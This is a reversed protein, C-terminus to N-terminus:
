FQFNYELEKVLTIKDKLTMSELEEKSHGHLYDNASKTDFKEIEESSYMGRSKDSILVKNEM